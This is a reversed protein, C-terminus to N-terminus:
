KWVLFGCKRGGILLDCRFDKRFIVCLRLEYAFLKSMRCEDTDKRNCTCMCVDDFTQRRLNNEDFGM